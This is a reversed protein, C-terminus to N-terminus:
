FAFVLGATLQDARFKGDGKWRDVLGWEYEFHLGYRGFKVVAGVGMPIDFWGMKKHDSDKGKIKEGSIKTVYKGSVWDNYTNNDGNVYASEMTSVIFNLSPGGYVTFSSSGGFKFSYGFKVPVILNHNFYMVKGDLPLGFRELNVKDNIRATFQYQVGTVIVLGKYLNQQVHFGLNFGHALKDDKGDWVANLFDVDTHIDQYAYNLTFGTYSLDGGGAKSDQASSTFFFLLASAALLIFKKM